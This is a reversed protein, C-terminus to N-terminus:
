RLERGCCPCVGCPEIPGNKGHPGTAIGEQRARFAAQTFGDYNHDPWRRVLQGYTVRGYRALERILVQYHTLGRTPTTM